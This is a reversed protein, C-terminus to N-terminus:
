PPDTYSAVHRRARTPARLATHQRLSPQTHLNITTHGSEQIRHPSATSECALPACGVTLNQFSTRGYLTGKAHVACMRVRSIYCIGGSARFGSVGLARTNEGNAIRHVLVPGFCM